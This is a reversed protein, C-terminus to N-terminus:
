EAHIAASHEMAFSKLELFQAWNDPGANYGHIRKEIMGERLVEISWSTGDCVGTAEYDISWQEIHCGNLIDCIYQWEDKSCQHHLYLYPVGYRNGDRFCECQLMRDAFRLTLIERPSFPTGGEDYVLALNPDNWNIKGVKTPHTRVAPELADERSEVKDYRCGVIVSASVVVIAIVVSKTKMKM